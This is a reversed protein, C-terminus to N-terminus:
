RALFPPPTISLHCICAHTMIRIHTQTPTRTPACRLSPHAGGRGAGIGAGTRFAYRTPRSHEVPTRAHTHPSARTHQSWPQLKRGSAWAAAQPADEQRPFASSQHDFAFRRWSDASRWGKSLRELRELRSGFSLKERRSVDADERMSWRRQGCKFAFSRWSHSSRGRRGWDGRRHPSFPM